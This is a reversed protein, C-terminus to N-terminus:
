NNRCNITETSGDSHILFLKFNDPMYGYGSDEEGKSSYDKELHRNVKCELILSCENEKLFSLLVGKKILLRYGKSGFSNPHRSHDNFDSWNEFKTVLEKQKNFGSRYDSTLTLGAWGIFKDSPCTFIKNLYYAYDDKDDEGDNQYSIHKLWGKLSFGNEELEMREENEIPLKFRVSHPVTQLAYLLARAKDTNVLSSAVYVDEHDNRWHREYGAAVVLWDDDNSNKQDNSYLKSDFDKSQINYIWNETHYARYDDFRWFDIEWPTEDRLDALWHNNWVTCWKDLWEDLDRYVNEENVLPITELLENAVYFMAHYEYYNRLDEVQPIEGHNNSTLYHEHDTVKVHNEKIVDGNFGWLDCIYSEAMKAIDRGSIGFLRGLEDYWYGVTDLDDFNFREVHDQNIGKRHRSTSAKKPFQTELASKLNTVQEKSYTSPKHKLVNLAASKALKRILIHTNEKQTAEEYLVDAHAILAEPFERSVRDLAMFLWLKSSISFYTYKSYQFAGNNLDNRYKILNSLIEKDGFQVLRKLVHLVHWRINKYPHGLCYRLFLTVCDSSPRLENNWHGEGVEPKINNNWKNLVWDIVESAQKPILLNRFIYISQYLFDDSFLSIRDKLIEKFAIALELSTKEFLSALEHIGHINISNIHEEDAHYFETLYKILVKDFNEKKWAKVSLSYGWEKIRASLAEEFSNYSIDKTNISILANLHRVQDKIPCKEKLKSLYEDVKFSTYHPVGDNLKQLAKEISTADCIDTNSVIRKIKRDEKLKTTKISPNDSVDENTNVKKDISSLFLALQKIKLVAEDDNIEERQLVPLLWEVWNKRSDLSCVTQLDRLLNSLFIKLAKKDVKLKQLLLEIFEGWQYDFVSLVTLSAAQHPTIINKQLASKLRISWYSLIGKEYGKHDWKCWTAMATPYDLNEIGYISSDWPFHDYGNLRISANECFRSFEYALRPNADDEKSSIETLEALVRIQNFAEIDVQSASEIAKQFYLNGETLSVKNAIRACQLYNRIENEANEQHNIIRGEADSLLKIALEHSSKSNTAADSLVLLVGLENYRKVCLKRLLNIFDVKKSTRTLLDCLINCIFKYLDGTDTRQYSLTYDSDLKKIVDSINKTLSGSLTKTIVAARVQYIPLLKSYLKDFEEKDSKNREKQRKELISEEDRLRKPYFDASVLSQKNLVAKLSAFRFSNHLKRVDDEGYAAYLGSYFRISHEPVPLNILSILESLLEKYIDKESLYECFSVLYADIGSNFDLLNKKLLIILTKALREIDIKISSNSKHLKELVVLLIDARKIHKLWEKLEEETAHEILQRVLIRVVKFHLERPSWRLLKERAVAPGYLRLSAEIECAVNHESVHYEKLDDKPVRNRMELWSRLLSLHKEAFLQTKSSRSLLAAFEMHASGHHINSTIEFFLKRTTNFDLYQSALDINEKILNLRYKDTKSAEACLFILKLFTANDEKNSCSKLALRVRTVSVERQRLPDTIIDLNKAGLVIERLEDYRGGIYLVNALHTNIYIDKDLEELFLYALKKLHETKAPYKERLHSEFDEDRFSIQDNSLIIGTSLDLCFDSIDLESSDSLLAAYKIPVPRPLHIIARLIKDVKNKDGLKKKAEKIQGDIINGVTKGHPKLFTFVQKLSDKNDLAYYQVRPNQNTLEHFEAIQDKTISSFKNKIFQATEKLTFREIQIRPTDDSLELSDIRQTRTTFVIKCGKPINEMSTLSHVFCKDQKIGAATLSNDAADIIITLLAKPYSKALISVANELRKRFESIYEYESLRGSLLLPSGIKQAMENCIQTIANQHTHRIVSDDLYTGQGYCDYIITVSNDPLYKSLSTIITTKGIGAEGHLCIAGEQSSIVESAIKKLQKREILNSPYNIRPPVPFISDISGEKLESIVNEKVITNINRRIAEPQMKDRIMQNLANFQNKIEYSNLESIARVLHHKQLRRTDTGCDSFDLLNLFTICEDFTLKSTVLVKDLTLKLSPHATLLEKKTVKNRGILYSQITEIDKLLPNSIKRTSVLKIILKEIVEKKGYKKHYEKFVKALKEIISGKAGGRKGECLKALTYTKQIQRESYKLQSFIVRHATEFTTGGYYEAMDIALLKEGTEDIEISEAPAPGEISVLKLGSDIFNLLDLAKRAAWLIHFDDGANSEPAESIRKKNSPNITPM